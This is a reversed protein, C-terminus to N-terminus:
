HMRAPYATARAGDGLLACAKEAPARVLFWDDDSSRGVKVTNQV